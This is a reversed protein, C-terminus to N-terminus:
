MLKRLDTYTSIIDRIINHHTTRAFEGFSGGVAQKRHFIPFHVRMVFRGWSLTNSLCM